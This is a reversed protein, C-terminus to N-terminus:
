DHIATDEGLEAPPPEGTLSKLFEVLDAEERQTLGLPVIAPHKVGPYNATGGGWNYFRVVDELTALSGNHMYPGTEAIHRLSATRFQGIMDETPELGALKAEGAEPDDSLAGTGNFTSGLAKPLDEYRGLDTRFSDQPVGINHFQQDSFIPGSHCDVCAAKGIFLRLGRKAAPSLADHDGAIYRDIPANQSILRREYAELAKGVNAMIRNVIARDEAAMMEWPGDPAGASKPKGSPPFRDADLAEPDLAPDLPVPFIADYVDRYKRYLLHVFQLRNGSFNAGSEPGGAGQKWMWPHAGAWNGWIYYNVNVLSPANRGTWRVGLSLANPNSRGDTYYRAPDHCDACAVKGTEGTMGVTGLGGNSGDNPVQIGGAYGKEFFLMQGLEAAALDDEYMNTPNSPPPETLAFQEIIEWEEETFVDVTEDGPFCAIGVVSLGIAPLM